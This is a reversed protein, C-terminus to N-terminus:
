KLVVVKKTFCKEDIELSLFYVGTPVKRGKNDLCLWTYSNSHVRKEFVIRGTVDQIKLVFYDYQEPITISLTKSAPNQMLVFNSVDEEHTEYFGPSGDAYIRQLYVDPSFGSTDDYQYQHVWASYFGGLGDTIIRCQDNKRLSCVSVGEPPQWLFTGLSDLSQALIKETNMETWQILVGGSDNQLMRPNHFLWNDVTVIIGDPGWLKNGASDLHQCHILLQYIRADEWCIFLGDTGDAVLQADRQYDLGIGLEVGSPDWLALGQWDFKQVYLDIDIDGNRCDEWVIVFHSDNVVAVEPQFQHSNFSILQRGNLEWYLNGTTDFIQGYIDYNGNRRDEWLIIFYGNGLDALAPQYQEGPSTCLPLGTSIWCQNGLSDLRQAYIDNDGSRCDQWVVVMGQNQDSITVANFQSGAIDCVVVGTGWLLNGNEDVRQAYLNFDDGGRADIWCLIAGGTGDEIVRVGLQHGQVDCIIIGQPNWLLNGTSDVRQMYVDYNGNRNDDWAYYVGGSGDHCIWPDVQTSDSDYILIGNVPWLTLILFVIHVIM